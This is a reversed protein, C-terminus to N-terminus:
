ATALGMTATSARVSRAVVSAGILIASHMPAVQMACAAVHVSKPPACCSPLHRARVYSQEVLLMVLLQPTAPGYDSRRAGRLHREREEPEAVAAPEVPPAGAPDDVRSGVRVLAVRHRRGVRGFAAARGGDRGGDRGCARTRRGCVAAAGRRKRDSRQDERSLVLRAACADILFYRM